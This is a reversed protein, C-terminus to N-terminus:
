ARAAVDEESIDEVLESLSNFGAALSSDDCVKAHAHPMIVWKKEGQSAPNAFYICLLKYQVLFRWLETLAQRNSANNLTVIAFQQEHTHSSLASQAERLSPLILYHQQRGDKYSVVFDISADDIKAIKKFFADRSRIFQIAWEKLLAKADGMWLDM